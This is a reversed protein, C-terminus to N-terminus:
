MLVACNLEFIPLALKAEELTLFQPIVQLLVEYTDINDFYAEKLPCIIM